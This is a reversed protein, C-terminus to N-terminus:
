SPDGIVMFGAWYYPHRYQKNQLLKIEADRLAQAKSVRQHNMSKRWISHFDRMLLTTSASDVKWQSVVISPSGAIFFAWAFGIIGEGTSIKGRATECASLVVMEAKLDLDLIEWPELLGDENDSGKEKSLAIHSYMPDVDNFIGHAAIHIVSFKGAEAKLVDERAQAGVYIKSQNGYLDALEMVEKEAEPLQALDARMSTDVLENTEDSLLPNGLALLKPIGPQISRMIQSLASLSPAYSVAHAELFYRGSSDELAQFPLEWLQQDPIIIASDSKTLKSEAPAILLKYLQKALSRFGLDQIAMQHRFRETLESLDKQNIDIKHVELLPQSGKNIVFLFTENEAVVYELITAKLDMSNTIQEADTPPIEGRQIQLEPHLTYLNTRFSEFDLRATRLKEKLLGILATDTPNANSLQTNLTILNSRLKKEREKEEATMTKTIHTKGSELVDLLIRAKSLEAYKFAENVQNQAVLLQILEYYPETMSQFFYPAATETGPVQTRVSEVVEVSEKFAALAKEPEAMEKYAKGEELMAAWLMNKWNQEIALQKAKQASELGDTFRKLDRQIQALLLTLETIKEKEKFEHFQHLSQLCYQLATEYEGKKEYVYAIDGRVGAAIGKQDLAEDRSLAQQYYDLAQDYQGELAHVGAINSLAIVAVSKMGSADYLEFAKQYYEMALKYNGLNEHIVGINITPLALWRKSGVEEAIKQVKLYYELALSIQGQKVLRNAINNEATALDLKSGAKKFLEEAKHAYELALEDNGMDAATSGLRTYSKGIEALDGLEERVKLSQQFFDLAKDHNSQATYIDGVLSLDQGIGKKDGLDQFLKLSREAKSMAETYQGQDKNLRGINLLADAIGKKYDIKESLQLSSELEKMAADVDDVDRYLMGSILKVSAFGIKDNREMSTKLLEDCVARAREYQADKELQLAQNILTDRPEEAESTFAAILLFLIKLYISRRM